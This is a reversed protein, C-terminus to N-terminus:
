TTISDQKQELDLIEQAIVPLKNQYKRIMQKHKNMREVWRDKKAKLDRIQKPNIAMQKESVIKINSGLFRRDTITITADDKPTKQKHANETAEEITAGVFFEKFNVVLEQLTNKEVKFM